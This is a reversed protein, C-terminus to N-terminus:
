WGGPPVTQSGRRYWSASFRQCKPCKLMGDRKPLTRAPHEHFRERHQCEECVLLYRWDNESPPPTDRQGGVSSLGYIGAGAVALCAALTLALAWRLQGRARLVVVFQTVGDVIPRLRRASIELARKM